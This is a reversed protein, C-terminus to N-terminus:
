DVDVVFWQGRDGVEGPGLGRVHEDVVCVVVVDGAAECASSDAACTTEACM